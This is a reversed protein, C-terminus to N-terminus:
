INRVEWGGEWEEGEGEGGTGRRGWGEGEGLVLHGHASMMLVLVRSLVNKDIIYNRIHYTHVRVCLSLIDLIHSLIVANEVTDSPSLLLLLLLIVRTLTLYPSHFYRAM